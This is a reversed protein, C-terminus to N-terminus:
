PSTPAAAPAQQAQDVGATNLLPLPTRKGALLRTVPPAATAGTTTDQGEGEVLDRPNVIMARLNADNDGTPNWTGPKQYPDPYYSSCGSALLAALPWVFRHMTNRM